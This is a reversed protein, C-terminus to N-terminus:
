RTAQTANAQAGKGVGECVCLISPRGHERYTTSLQQRKNHTERPRKFKTHSFDLYSNEHDVHVVLVVTTDPRKPRMPVHLFKSDAHYSIM